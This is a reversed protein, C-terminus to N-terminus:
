QITSVYDLAIVIGDPWPLYKRYHKLTTVFPLFLFCFSCSTVFTLIEVFFFSDNRIQLSKRIPM